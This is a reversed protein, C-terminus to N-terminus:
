PTDGQTSARERNFRQQGLYCLIHHDDGLPRSCCVCSLLRGNCEDREVIM